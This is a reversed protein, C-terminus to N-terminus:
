KLDVCIWKLLHVSSKTIYQFIHLISLSFNFLQAHLVYLCFINIFYFSEMAGDLRGARNLNPLQKKRQNLFKMCANLTNQAFTCGM